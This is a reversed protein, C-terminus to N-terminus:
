QVKDNVRPSFGTATFAVQSNYKTMAEQVSVQTAANIKGYM